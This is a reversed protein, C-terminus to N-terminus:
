KLSVIADKVGKLRVKEIYKNIYKHLICALKKGNEFDRNQLM